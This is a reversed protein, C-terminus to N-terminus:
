EKIKYKKKFKRAHNRKTRWGVAELLVDIHSLWLAIVRDKNRKRVKNFISNVQQIVHNDKNLTVEKNPVM